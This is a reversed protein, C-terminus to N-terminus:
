NLYDMGANSKRGISKNFNRLSQRNAKLEEPSESTEWNPDYGQFHKIGIEADRIIKKLLKKVDDWGETYLDGKNLVIKGRLKKIVKISITGEYNDFPINVYGRGDLYIDARLGYFVDENKDMLCRNDDCIEKANHFADNASDILEQIRRVVPSDEIGVGERLIKNVSEKIINHLDSETLRITNKIM